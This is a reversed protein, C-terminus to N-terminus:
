GMRIEALEASLDTEMDRFDASTYHRRQYDQQPAPKARGPPTDERAEWNRAAAHWDKMPSRGVKWGNSSYYDVFRQPDTRTLGNDRCFARVEDVSPPRFRAARGDRERQEHDQEHEHEQEQDHDQEQEQKHNSESAEAQGESPEAEPESAKAQSRKGGSADAQGESAEAQSRKAEAQSRKAGSSAGGKSGLQSMRSVSDSCQNIYRKMRRWTLDLVSRPEFAPEIGGFAYAMSARIIIGLEEDTLPEFHDELMDDFLQLYKLM